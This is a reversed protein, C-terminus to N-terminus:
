IIIYWYLWGILIKIRKDGWDIMLTPLVDIWKYNKHIKM